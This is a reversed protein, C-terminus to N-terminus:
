PSTAARSVARGATLGADPAARRHRVAVGAAAAVADGGVCPRVAGRGALACALGGALMWPLPGLLVDTYDVEPQLFGAAQVDRLLAQPDIAQENPSHFEDRRARAGALRRLVGRANPDRVYLWGGAVLRQRLWAVRGAPQGRRGPPAARRVRHRRRFAATGLDVEGIAASWSRRTPWAPRVRVPSPPTSRSRRCTWDSSRASTM